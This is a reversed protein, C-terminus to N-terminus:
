KSNKLELAKKVSNCIGEENLNFLDLLTTAPGSTGFVDNVGLKVVPVPHKECVVGSVMSGLGGIISHEEATVIAGTEKACKIVLEKDIPKITHMNIVRAKIGKEKLMESANLAKHVMLGTAIITVDNGEKLTIGKGIKFECNEDNFVPTALRSFRLYCPGNHEVVAKTAKKAEFHDAPNIVVMKPITCMLAIDENCQHTAGDEGVSIGAHTAALKVNLSPYGVTNRVQEYARGTLFMAFSSAFPIKGTLSLGAAVGILNAEAIGCNFFRDNFEKKFTATKTAKSLDADLVVINENESGLEKLAEGYSERTAIKRLEKM